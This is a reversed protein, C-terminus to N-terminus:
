KGHKRLYVAAAELIEPSDKMLGLGRNCRGCLLGRIKKTAHDHDVHTNYDFSFPDRCIACRSDQETAMRQFAVEDIGYRYKRYRAHAAAPNNARRIKRAAAKKAKNNTDYKRGVARVRELHTARYKRAYAAAKEPNAKKWNVTTM